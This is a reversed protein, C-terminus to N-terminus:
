NFDEDFQKWLSTINAALRKIQGRKSKINSPNTQLVRLNGASHPSELCLKEQTEGPQVDKHQAAGAGAVRQQKPPVASPEERRSRNQGSRWRELIDGGRWDDGYKEYNDRLREQNDRVYILTYATYICRSIGSSM